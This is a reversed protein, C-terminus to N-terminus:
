FKAEFVNQVNFIIADKAFSKRFFLVLFHEIIENRMLYYFAKIKESILIPKDLHKIYFPSELQFTFKGFVYDGNKSKVKSKEVKLLWLKSKNLNYYGYSQRILKM